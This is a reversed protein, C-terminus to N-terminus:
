RDGRPEASAKRARADRHVSETARELARALNWAAISAQDRAKEARRRTADTPANEAVAHAADAERLAEAILRPAGAAARAADEARGAAAEALSATLNADVITRTKKTM